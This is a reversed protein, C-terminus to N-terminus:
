FSNSFVATHDLFVPCIDSNSYYNLRTNQKTECKHRLPKRGQWAILIVNYSYILLSLQPKQMEKTHNLHKIKSSTYDSNRPQTHPTHTFGDGHMEQIATEARVSMAQTPKAEALSSM